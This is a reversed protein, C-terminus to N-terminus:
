VEIGISGFPDGVIDVHSNDNNSHPVVAMVAPVQDSNLMQQVITSRNNFLATKLAGAISGTPDLRTLAASADGVYATIDEGTAHLGLILLARAVASVDGAGEIHKRLERSLRLGLRSERSM